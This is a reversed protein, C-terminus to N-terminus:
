SALLTDSKHAKAQGDVSREHGIWREHVFGARGKVPHRTDPTRALGFGAAAGAPVGPYVRMDPTGRM